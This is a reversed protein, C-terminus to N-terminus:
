GRRSRRVVVLGGVAAAAIGGAVLAWTSSPSPVVLRVRGVVDSQAVPGFSRSDISVASNDGLLFVHGDPIRLERRPASEGALPQVAISRGNVSVVRDTVVVTDGGIAVARKVARGSSGPPYRFLVVDGRSVAPEGGTVVVWDGRDVAPAMSNSTIRHPSADLARAVLVLAVVVAAPVAVVLVARAV